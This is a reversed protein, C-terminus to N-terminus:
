KSWIDVENLTQFKINDSKFSADFKTSKRKYYEFIALSWSIGEKSKDVLINSGDYHGDELFLELSTFTECCTMFLKFDENSEWIKIKGINIRNKYDNNTIIELLVDPTVVIELESDNNEVTDLIANLHIESFIPLLIKLNESDQIFELYNTLPNILNHSNSSICKGNKLAYCKKLFKYPISKIDHNKFFYVHQNISYWNEILKILNLCSLYGTSSLYYYKNFKCVLREKKLEKIGHLITASPKKLIMRLGELNKEGDILSLLLKTRMKSTLIFRVKEFSRSDHKRKKFNNKM